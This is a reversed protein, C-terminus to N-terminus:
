ILHLTLYKNFIKFKNSPYLSSSSSTMGDGDLFMYNINKTSASTEVRNEFLYLFIESEIDQTDLNKSCNIGFRSLVLILYKM